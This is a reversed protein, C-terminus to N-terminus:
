LLSKRPAKDNRGKRERVVRGWARPIYQLHLLQEVNATFVKVGLFLLFVFVFLFLLVLVLLFGRGVHSCMLNQPCSPMSRPFSQSFIVTPKNTKNSDRPIVTYQFLM